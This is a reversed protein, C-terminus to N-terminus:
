GLAQLFRRVDEPLPEGHARATHVQGAMIQVKRLAPEGAPAAPNELEHLVETSQTRCVPCTYLHRYPMSWCFPAGRRRHEERLRDQLAYLNEVPAKRAQRALALLDPLADFRALLATTEADM